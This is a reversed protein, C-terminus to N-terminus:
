FKEKNLYEPPKQSFKTTLILKTFEANKVYKDGRIQIIANSLVLKSLLLSSTYFDGVLDKILFSNITDAEAIKMLVEDINNITKLFDILAEPNKLRTRNRINDSKEHLKCSPSSYVATIYEEIFETHCNRVFLTENEIYSNTRAAIAAAMKAVKIHAANPLLVPSGEGFKDLLRKAVEIIKIKDEFVVSECKWARIILKQCLDATYKVPCTPPNISYRNLADYDIDAKGLTMVLDFRRLDEPTGIVALAADIGFAYSDIVREDPPNSIAIIRCRANRARQKIKTIQVVGSSRTETLSQFVKTNKQMGKLEEFILLKKDNMPMAGYLILRRGNFTELGMTLGALTVSKCDIKVGLGYHQRLASCAGSKAQETDGVAFFEIYAPTQKNDGFDFYLVSHYALDIGIHYLRRQWVRTVNCELDTYIDDLKEKLSELTWEKPSFIEMEKSDTGRYADLSDQTPICDSILFSSIQNKPSPYHRGTLLYTQNEIQANNGIIYGIKDSLPDERSTTDVMEELRVETVSYNTKPFFQCQRCKIPIRFCEKYTKTHEDTREGIFALISPHEKSIHMEVAETPNAFAQSNVDCVTCFDENRGCRVEVSAPALYTTSNIGSIVAPFKIRKGVIDSSCATRFDVEKIEEEPTQGGPVYVWEPASLLAQYLDGGLRIFDNIDGKGLDKVLPLTVLHVARAVSRLIKCRTQAYKRGVEDEDLNVYVLKNAFRETYEAPWVNEGCTPAIAGIGHPNLIRAAAVAKLEGGCVLIEDYELQEIPFLRTKSNDKRSLNLFKKSKAGPIYLRLNAYEGVDNQIPISIRKENGLDRVGLRYLRIDDDKIQRHYLEALFHPHDWIANHDREVDQPDVPFKCDSKAGLKARVQFYPLRTYRVLYNVLSARKGCAFCTFFGTKCHITASPNTDDHYPCLISFHELRREFKIRFENLVEEVLM